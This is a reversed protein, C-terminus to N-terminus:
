HQLRDLGAAIVALDELAIDALCARQLEVAAEVGGPALAAQHVGNRELLISRAARTSVARAAAVSIAMRMVSTWARFCEITGISAANAFSHGSARNIFRSSSLRDASRARSPASVSAM